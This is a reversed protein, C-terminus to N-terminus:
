VSLNLLTGVAQGEAEIIRVGAQAQQEAVKLDIISKTVDVSSGSKSASAIQAASQQVRQEAAQLVSVGSALSNIEM